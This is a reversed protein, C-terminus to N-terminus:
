RDFILVMAFHREVVFESIPYKELIKKFRQKRQKSNGSLGIAKVLRRSHPREKIRFLKKILKIM